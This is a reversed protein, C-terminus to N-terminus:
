DFGQPLEIVSAAVWTNRDTSAQYFDVSYGFYSGDPGRYLTPHEAYINFTWVGNPATWFVSLLALIFMGASSVCDWVCREMGLSCGAACKEVWFSPVTSCLSLSLSAPSTPTDLTVDELQWQIEASQEGRFCGRPVRFVLLDTWVVHGRRQRRCLVKGVYVCVCACVDCPLCVVDSSSSGRTM